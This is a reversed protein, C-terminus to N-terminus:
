VYAILLGGEGAYTGIVPGMKSLIVTQFPYRQMIQDRLQKAKEECNSHAIALVRSRSFDLKYEGIRNVMRALAQRTGRIKEVVELQGDKSARMLLKINLVSAIAGRVKDLRGGKIVNDLSDLVVYNKIEGVMKKAHQVVDQWGAGQKVWHAAQHVLIGLGLSANRSDIVEIRRSPEEELLLERGMLAHHYTSSITSSVSIVVIDNEAPVQKFMQYFDHPSPSSTKPLHEENRMKEYFLDPDMDSKYQGDRFHVNLPVIRIGLQKLLSQPLDASGDTMITIGM